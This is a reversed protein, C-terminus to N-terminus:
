SAEDDFLSQQGSTKVVPQEPPEIVKAFYEELSQVLIKGQALTRMEPLNGSIIRTAGYNIASAIINVDAKVVQRSIGFNARVEALHDRNSTLESAILAAGFDLPAIPFSSDIKALAEQREEPTNRVLFEALVQSPIVLEIRQATVYAFFKAALPIMHEIGATAQLNLGWILINTDVAIM